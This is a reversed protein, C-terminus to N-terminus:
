LILLRDFILSSLISCFSLAGLLYCGEDLSLCITFGSNYFSKRLLIVNAGGVVVTFGMTEFCGTLGNM